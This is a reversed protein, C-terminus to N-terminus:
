TVALVARDRMIDLSRQAPASLVGNPGTWNGKRLHVFNKVAHWVRCSSIVLTREGLEEQLRVSATSNM